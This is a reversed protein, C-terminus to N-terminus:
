SKRRVEERLKECETMTIDYKSAKEECQRRLKAEAELLTNLRQCRDELAKREIVEGQLSGDNVRQQRSMDYQLAELTASVENYRQNASQLDLKTKELDSKIPQAYEASRNQYSLTSVNFM